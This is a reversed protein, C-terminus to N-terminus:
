GPDGSAKAVIRRIQAHQERYLIYARATKKFPSNLLIEEVIDQIQEVDPVPGQKMENLLLMVKTTLRKAKRNGFEGTAKGARAIASTIKHRKIEVVRGDRKKIHKFM